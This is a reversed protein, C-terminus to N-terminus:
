DSGWLDDAEVAIAREYLPILHKACVDGIHQRVALGTVDVRGVYQDGERRVRAPELRLLRMEEVFGDEALAEGCRKAVM